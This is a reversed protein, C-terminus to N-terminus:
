EGFRLEQRKLKVGEASLLHSRSLLMKYIRNVEGAGQCFGGM